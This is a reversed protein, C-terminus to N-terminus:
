RRWWWRRRTGGRLDGPEEALLRALGLEEARAIRWGAIEARAAAPDDHYLRCIKETAQYLQVSWEPSDPTAYQEHYSTFRRWEREVVSSDDLLIGACLMAQYEYREDSLLVIQHRKIKTMAEVTARRALYPLGDRRIRRLIDAFITPADQQDLDWWEDGQKRAIWGLRNTFTLGLSQPAYLPVVGVELTFSQGSFRPVFGRV